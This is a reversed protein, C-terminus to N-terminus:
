RAKLVEAGIGSMPNLPVKAIGGAGTRLYEKTAEKWEKSTTKPHGRHQGGNDTTTMRILGEKAVYACVASVGLTGLVLPATAPKNGSGTRTEGTDRTHTLTGDDEARGGASRWPVRPCVVRGCGEGGVGVGLGAVRVGVCVRRGGRM